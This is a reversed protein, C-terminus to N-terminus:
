EVYMNFLWVHLYMFRVQENEVAYGNRLLESRVYMKNVTTQSKGLRQREVMPDLWISNGISCNIMKIHWPWGFFKLIWNQNPLTYIYEKAIYEKFCNLDMKKILYKRSLTCWNISIYTQNVSFSIDLSLDISWTYWIWVFYSDFCKLM